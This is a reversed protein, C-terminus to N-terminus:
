PFHGVIAETSTRLSGQIHQLACERRNLDVMRMGFMEQQEKGTTIPFTEESLVERFGNIRSQELEGAVNIVWPDSHM